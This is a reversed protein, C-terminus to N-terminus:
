QFVEDIFDNWANKAAEKEEESAKYVNPYREKIFRYKDPNSISEKDKGSATKSSKTKADGIWGVGWKSGSAVVTYGNQLERTLSLVVDTGPLANNKARTRLYANSYTGIKTGDFNLGDAHIRKSSKDLVAFAAARQAKDFSQTESLTQFKGALRGAVEAINTKITIM